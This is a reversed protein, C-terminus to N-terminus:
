ILTNTYVPEYAGTSPNYNYQLGSSGGGYTGGSSTGGDGTGTTTGTTSTTGSTAPAAARPPAVVSAFWSTAGTTPLTFSDGEPSNEEDFWPDSLPSLEVTGEYTFLLKNTTNISESAYPNEAYVAQTYPLTVLNGASASVVADPRLILPLSAALMNTVSSINSPITGTVPDGESTLSTITNGGAFTGTVDELYLRVWTYNTTTDTALVVVHKITGTATSSSTATQGVEYEYAGGTQEVVIFVDKSTRVLNTLGAVDFKANVPKLTPQLIGNFIACSYNPDDVDGRSHDLFDDVLIGNKPREAGASTTITDNLLRQELFSLETYKRLDKVDEAITNIDRMTFRRNEVPTAVAAFEKRSLSRAVKPSAAPFPPIFVTGLTMANGPQPRAVPTPDPIGTMVEFEGEVNLIVRDVRGLNYQYDTTFEEQAHPIYIGALFSKNAETYVVPNMITTGTSTTIGSIENVTGRFDLVDRLEYEVGNPTKYKPMETWEIQASSAATGQAPLPYSDVTFYGGLSASNSHEFYDFDVVLRKNNTAHSLDFTEDTKKSISSLEYFSNTQGTNLEFVSTSDTAISTFATTNSGSLVSNIKIVDYQGLSLSGDLTKTTPNFSPHTIRVTGGSALSSAATASSAFTVTGTGTNITGITGILTYVGDADSDHYVKDGVSMDDSAISAITFTTSSGSTITSTTTFDKSIQLKLKRNKRLTKTKPSTDTKRVSVYATVGIGSDLTTAGDTYIDITMSTSTLATIAGSSATASAALPIIQGKEYIFTGGSHTADANAVLIVENNRATTTNSTFAFTENGSLTFTVAGTNSTTGTLMKRYVFDNNYGAGLDLTSVNRSPLSVLLTNYSTDQLTAPTSDIDAFFAPATSAYITVVNSFDGATMKIDSLYLRYKCAENGVTGSHYELSLVRATGLKTGAPATTDSNTNGALAASNAAASATGAYLEVLTGANLSAVGCVEKVIVYNGYATSVNASEVDRTETEKDVDFYQTAYTQYEYGKVYAKGASVGLALKSASGGNGSTYVGGNNGSKLHERISLIFPTITYDGSEDYTRRALVKNLEGYDTLDYRRAVRGAVLEFLVNFDDATVANPDFSELLTAVKLRDAGPATYNYTGTAPDLLTSDADAGVISEVITVGVKKSPTTSYASVVVTQEQHIVFTGKGYIIGDKLSFLSGYGTPTVGSPAVVFTITNDSELYLVADAPFATTTGNTGQNLYQVHLTKYIASQSGGTTKKIVAKLGTASNVLVEGEYDALDANDIAVSANDTDLIKVYPVKTNLAYDCGTIVAGEKFVHNGFREVQKQLITQIQTLERAQVAYGPKFLIRQYQKDDSFDDYYPNVNLNLNNPM